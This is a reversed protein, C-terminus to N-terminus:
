KTFPYPSDPRGPEGETLAPETGMKSQINSWVNDSPDVDHSPEFLQRAQEAIYQLDRVLAACNACTKLHNSLAPDESVPNSSLSFLDPLHDQFDACSLTDPTPSSHTSM